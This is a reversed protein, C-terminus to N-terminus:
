DHLLMMDDGGTSCSGRGGLPGKTELNPQRCCGLEQQWSKFCYKPKCLNWTLPPFRGTRAVTRAPISEKSSPGESCRWHLSSWWWVGEEEKQGHRIGEWPLRLVAAVAGPVALLLSNMTPPLLWPVWLAGPAPTAAAGFCAPAAWCMVAAREMCSDWCLTGAGALPCWGQPVFRLECGPSTSSSAPGPFPVAPVNVACRVALQARCPCEHLSHEAPVLM